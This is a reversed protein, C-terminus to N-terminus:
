PTFRPEDQIPLPTPIAKYERDPPAPCPSNDATVNADREFEDIWRFPDEGNTSYVARSLHPGGDFTLDAAGALGGSNGVDSIAYCDECGVSNDAIHGSDSQLVYFWCEARFSNSTPMPIGVTVWQFHSSVEKTAQVMQSYYPIAKHMYFDNILVNFKLPTTPNGQKKIRFAVSQVQCPCHFHLCEGQTTKGFIPKIGPDDYPNGQSQDGQGYVAYVPEQDLLAWKKDKFALSNAQPDPSGDNPHIKNLTDTTLFSAYNSVGIVAVPHGGGRLMDPELVLHYVKGKVLPFPDLPITTWTQSKPVFSYATLPTGSPEGDKDEQLSILYAPAHISEVCFVAAANATMDAQCTFRYSLKQESNQLPTALRKNAIFRNGFEAHSLPCFLFVTVLTLALRYFLRM